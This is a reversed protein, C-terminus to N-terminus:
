YTNSIVIMRHVTKLSWDSEILRKAMWDLLEPHSPDSGLEGFNDTSDVLGRGFHWRWVRNVIVRATLPHNPNTLWNALQLRGSADSPITPQNPLTLVAPYRRPVIKGLTLHSGRQHVPVNTITGESVGMAAPLVPAAKKLETLEARLNKLQSKTEEPYHEEPKAPLKANDEKTALLAANAVKILEAIEKNKAEVKQDYDQKQKKQTQTPIEHEHWKAIKKFSDMTRTSKFIGALAYYDEATVPDFKHDHCRACGLTLGAFAKGFTDIQEDVIDMEMKTEDVEALVKPGLSLFGTAVLRENRDTLDKTPLLDGALQEQVFLSYPKDGNLSRVVYDRYRWAHGHAVNEDLGNSDAYRVVDLWHRGW